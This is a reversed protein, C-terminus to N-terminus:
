QILQLERLAEMVLRINAKIKCVNETDIELRQELLAIRKDCFVICEDLSLELFFGFGVNVM